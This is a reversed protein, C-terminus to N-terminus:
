TLPEQEPQYINHKPECANTPAEGLALQYFQGINCLQQPKEHLVLLLLRQSLWPQLNHWIKDATAADLGNFPEDLIVLQPQRLLLRALSLRRAQGGSLAEGTDGLWTDLGQALNRGWSELELLALVQWLQEDTQPPLGLQLNYRLTDAFVINQQVLYGVQASIDILTALPSVSGNVSLPLAPDQVEGAIAAALTSKGSGSPGTLLLWPTTEDLKLLLPRSLSLPVQPHRNVALELRNVTASIEAPFPQAQALPALRGAAFLTRGYSQWSAPLALLLEAVGLWGLVFMVAQPGSLWQASIGLLVSCVLSCFLLSNLCQLQLQFRRQAQQLQQELQYLQELQRSLELQHAAHQQSVRLEAVGHLHEICAIRSQNVAVALRHGLRHNARLFIRSLSFALLLSGSWLLLALLPLWLALVACFLSLALLSVVPPLLLRLYLNDLSDLEATLRNLWDADAHQATQRRGLAQLGRFLALRSKALQRLVTDHNYLREAYRSVTRSLAFFRIGGGPLYIDLLFPLGLLLAAGAIATATIFWGSLALLAIGSLATALALLAGVMLRSPNAAFLVKIWYIIANASSLPM